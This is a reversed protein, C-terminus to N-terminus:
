QERQQSLIGSLHPCLLFLSGSLWSTTSNLLEVTKSVISKVTLSPSQLNPEWLEADEDPWQIPLEELSRDGCLWEVVYVSLTVGVILQCLDRWLQETPGKAV